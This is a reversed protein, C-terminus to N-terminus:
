RCPTREGEAAGPAPYADRAKACTFVMTFRVARHGAGQGEDYRFDGWRTFGLPAEVLERRYPVLARALVGLPAAAPALASMAWRADRLLPAASDLVPGAAQLLRTGERLRTRERELARADPLLRALAAVAPRLRRVAPEADALLADAGPLAARATAELPPLEALTRGLAPTRDAVPATLRAAAGALPGTRPGAARAVADAPALLGGADRTARLLPTAGSLAGPAAALAGNLAEGRGALGDGANTVTRALAARTDADFGAILHPLDVSASTRGSGGPTLEVYVAGAMGRLRVRASVRGLPRDVSLRAIAHGVGPQVATVTGIRRGALRVEDGAHLLPANGPLAIRLPHGPAGNVALTSVLALLAAVALVVGGAVKPNREARRRM